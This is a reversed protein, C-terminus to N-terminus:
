IPGIVAGLDARLVHPEALEGRTGQSRGHGGLDPVIFTLGKLTFGAAISAYPKGHM